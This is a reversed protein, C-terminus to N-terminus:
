IFTNCFKDVIGDTSIIDSIKESEDESDKIIENEEPKVEILKMLLCVLWSHKVRYEKIYQNTKIDQITFKTEPVIIYEDGKDDVWLKIRKIQDEPTDAKFNDTRKGCFCSQSLIFNRNNIRVLYKFDVHLHNTFVVDTFKIAVEPIYIFDKTYNADPLIIIKRKFLNMYYKVDPDDLDIKGSYGIFETENFLESLM